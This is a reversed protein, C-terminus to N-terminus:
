LALDNREYHKSEPNWAFVAAGKAEGHFISIVVHDAGPYSPEDGGAWMAARHDQESWFAEHDPHSHYFGIVELKRKAADNFATILEKPDIFYGTDADRSYKDPYKEKLENQINKCPRVENQSPDGRDGLIIGCCENPYEREAHDNMVKLDIPLLKLAM